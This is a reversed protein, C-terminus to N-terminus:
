FIFFDSFIEPFDQNKGFHRFKEFIEIKEIRNEIPFKRPFRSKRFNEFFDHNKLFIESKKLKKSPNKISKMNKQHESFNLNQEKCFTTHRNIFYADRPRQLANNSFYGFKGLM